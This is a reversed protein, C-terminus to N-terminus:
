MPQATLINTFSGAVQVKWKQIKNIKGKTNNTFCDTLIVFKHHVCHPEESLRDTQIETRPQFVSDTLSVSFFLYTVKIEKPGDDSVTCMTEAENFCKFKRLSFFAIPSHIFYPLISTIQSVARNPPHNTTGKKQILEKTVTKTDRFTSSSSKLVTSYKQKSMLLSDFPPNTKLHLLPLIEQLM